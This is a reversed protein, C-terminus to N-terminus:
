KRWNPLSPAPPPAAAGLHRPCRGPGGRGGDRCCGRRCRHRRPTADTGGDEVAVQRRQAGLATAHQVAPGVVQVQIYHVPLAPSPRSRGPWPRPPRASRGAGGPGCPTVQPRARRERRGWSVEDRVDGEAVGDHLAQALPQALLGEETLAPAAPREGGAAPSPGVAREEGRGSMCIITAAGSCHTFGM